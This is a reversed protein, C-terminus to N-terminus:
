YILKRDPQALAHGLGMTTDHGMASPVLVMDLPHPRLTMWDRAAMMTTVVIDRVGRAAHVVEIAARPDMRADMGEGSM